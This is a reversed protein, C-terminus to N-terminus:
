KEPNDASAPQSIGPSAAGGAAEGMLSATLAKNFAAVAELASKFEDARIREAIAAGIKAFAESMRQVQPLAEATKQDIDDADVRWTGDINRLVTRSTQGMVLQTYVVRDDTQEAVTAKSFDPVLANLMPGISEFFGQSFKEQMAQDIVGIAETMAATSQVLNQGQPTQAHMLAIRGRMGEVNTPLSVIHDHLEKASAFGTPQAGGLSAGETASKPKEELAATADRVSASFQDIKAQDGRSQVQTLAEEAAAYAEKAQQMSEEYASTAGAIADATDAGANSLRELLLKHGMLGRARSWHLRGKLEQVQAAVLKAAQADDGRVQRAANQVQSSAKDLLTLAEQYHGALAGSIDNNMESLSANILAAHDSVQKRTAAIEDRTSKSFAELQALASEISKIMADLQQAQSDAMTLEPTLSYELEIERQAIDYEIKDAQRSADVAQRYTDFGDANGLEQARRRLDNVKARLTDVEKKNAVNAMARESIPADLQDITARVEAIEQRTAELERQLQQREPGADVSELAAAVAELELMADIRGLLTSRRERHDLETREAAELRVHALERLATASLVAKAAVQGPEGGEIRALETVVGNLSQAVSDDAARGALAKQLKMNAQHIQAQVADRQRAAADECGPLATLPGACLAVACGLRVILKM